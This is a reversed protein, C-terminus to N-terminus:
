RGMLRSEIKPFINSLAIYLERKVKKWLLLSKVGEWDPKKEPSEQIAWNNDIIWSIWVAKSSFGAASTLPAKKSIDFAKSLTQCSPIM